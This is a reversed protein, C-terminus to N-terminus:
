PPFVGRIQILNHSKKKCQVIMDSISSRSGYHKNFHLAFPMCVTVRVSHSVEATDTSNSQIPEQDNGKYRSKLTLMSVSAIESNVQKVASLACYTHGTLRM